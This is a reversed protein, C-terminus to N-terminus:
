YREHCVEKWMNNKGMCKVRQVFLRMKRIDKIGPKKEVGSSVDVGYPRISKLMKEVTDPTMGGAVIYPRTGTFKKLLSHAFIKGTGGQKEQEYTDFLFADVHRYTKTIKLSDPEAIRVAKIITCYKQFYACYADDEEGHFQAAQLRCQRLVRVVDQKPANVFVGVTTVLPPLGAIIRAAKEPDIRRPSEAFVFGLADAGCAVAAFADVSNTIGCIKVKTMM